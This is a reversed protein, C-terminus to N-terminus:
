RPAIPRPGTRAFKVREVSILCGGNRRSQRERRESKLVPAVKRTTNFIWSINGCSKANFQWFEGVLLSSFAKFGLDQMVAVLVRVERDSGLARMPQAKFASRSRASGLEFCLAARQSSRTVRHAIVISSGMKHREPISAACFSRDRICMESGM